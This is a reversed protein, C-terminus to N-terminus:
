RIAGAISRCHALTATSRAAHRSLRPNDERLIQDYSMSVHLDANFRGIEAISEASNVSAPCLVSIGHRKPWARDAEPRAEICSGGRLRHHIATRRWSAAARTGGLGDGFFGIKM